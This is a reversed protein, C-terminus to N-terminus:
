ALGGPMLGILRCGSDDIARSIIADPEIADPEIALTAGVAEAATASYSGPHGWVSRCHAGPDTVLQPYTHFTSAKM